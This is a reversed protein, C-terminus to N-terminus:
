SNQTEPKKNRTESRSRETHCIEIYHNDPCCALATPRLYEINLHGCGTCIKIPKGIKEANAIEPILDIVRNWFGDIESQSLGAKYLNENIAKVKKLVQSFKM